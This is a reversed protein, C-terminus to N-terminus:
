YVYTLTRACKILKRGHTRQREEVHGPCVCVMGWRRMMELRLFIESRCVAAWRWFAEDSGAEMVARIEEQDQAHAFLERSLFRECLERLAVLQRLVEPVTEYRWKAFSATFGSLLQELNPPERLRRVIHNRNSKNRSFKCLSRMHALYKPWDAMRTAVGKMIGGLAHSWGAMRLARRFLRHDQHVLPRLRDLPTGAVWAVFADVIDPIELLHM